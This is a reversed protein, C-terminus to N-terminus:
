QMNIADQGIKIPSDFHINFSTKFLSSTKKSTSIVTFGVEKKPFEKEVKAKIEKKIKSLYSIRDVIPGVVDNAVFVKGETYPQLKKVSMSRGDAVIRVFNKYVPNLLNKKLYAQQDKTPVKFPSVPEKYKGIAINHQSVGLKKATGEFITIPMIVGISGVIANQNAIIGSLSNNKDYKSATAIYYAGSACISEVYVTLDIGEKQFDKLYQTLEESAQPSGGGSQMIILLHAFKDKNKLIIDLQDIIRQIYKETIAQDINLTAINKEYPTSVGESPMYKFVLFVFLGLEFSVFIITALVAFSQKVEMIKLLRRHSGAPKLFWFIRKLKSM